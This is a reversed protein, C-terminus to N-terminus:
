KVNKDPLRWQVVSWGGVEVDERHRNYWVGDKYKAKIFVCRQGRKSLRVKVSAVSRGPLMFDVGLWVEEIAVEEVENKM